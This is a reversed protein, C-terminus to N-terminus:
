CVLSQMLAKHSKSRLIRYVRRSWDCFHFHISTKKNEVLALIYIQLSILNQIDHDFLKPCFRLQFM